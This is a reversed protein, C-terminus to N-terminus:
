NSTSEIEFTNCGLLLVVYQEIGQSERYVHMQGQDELLVKKRVGTDLYM